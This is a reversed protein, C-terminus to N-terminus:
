CQEVNGVEKYHVMIMVIVKSYDIIDLTILLSVQHMELPRESDYATGTVATRRQTERTHNKM